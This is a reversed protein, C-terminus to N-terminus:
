RGDLGSTRTRDLTIKPTEGVIANHSRHWFLYKASLNLMTAFRNRNGLLSFVHVVIWIIWAPFGTLNPLGKVQAVAANRGITALTGKDRYRFPTTETGSLAAKVQNAVYAGGQQAPQALQPLARDGPEVAIDGVAFVGDLGNVRLHDDIVIRGGRGQPLNWQAVQEHVTVGSAWIVIDAPLEVEGAGKADGLIVSRPRVEKVSTSMRLDVGRKELSAYAYDRLKPDFPKILVPEREILTIHVRGPSIEPYNVPLDNNRMEALTGATEVGTAGGGVVVVRLDRDRGNVVAEELEAFVKDRLALAQSRLYLPMSIEAAGPIGFFNATVGAAIILFDYGVVQGGDLAITKAEHDMSVVTGKLFEVNDQHARISRLFWTIDGPNLTATAVQYLLPQFTNYTHRDILTIDVDAGRLGHVAALGGFGGGVVVVHPRARKEPTVDPNSKDAGDASVRM